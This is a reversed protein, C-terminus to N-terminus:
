SDDDERKQSFLFSAQVYVFDKVKMQFFSFYFIEM